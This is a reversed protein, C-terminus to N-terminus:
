YRGVPQIASGVIDILKDASFPKPLFNRGGNLLEVHSTMEASYGSMYIVKLSDRRQLLMKALVSGSIGHPMVMDTLLVDM